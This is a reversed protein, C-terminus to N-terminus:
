VYFVGYERYLMDVWMERYDMLLTTTPIYAGFKENKELEEDIAEIIKIIDEKSM